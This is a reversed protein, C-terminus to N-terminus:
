QFYSSNSTHQSCKSLLTEQIKNQWILGFLIEQETQDLFLPPPPAAEGMSGGSSAIFCTKMVWHIKNNKPFPRKTTFILVYQLCDCRFPVSLCIFALNPNLIRRTGNASLYISCDWYISCDRKYKKNSLNLVLALNSIYGPCGSCCHEM